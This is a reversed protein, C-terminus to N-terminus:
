YILPRKYSNKKKKYIIIYYIDKNIHLKKKQKKIKLM